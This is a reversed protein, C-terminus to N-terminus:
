LCYQLTGILFIEAKGKAMKFFVTNGARKGKLCVLRDEDLQELRSEPEVVAGPDNWSLLCINFATDFSQGIHTLTPVRSDLWQHQFILSVFFLCQFM